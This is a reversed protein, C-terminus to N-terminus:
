VSSKPAISGCIQSFSFTNSFDTNFQFKTPLASRNEVNVVRNTNKGLHVEGFNVSKSSLGADVGLSNGTAYINIKNGSHAQVRYKASSCVGM